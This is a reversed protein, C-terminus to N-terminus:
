KGSDGDTFGANKLAEAWEPAPQWGDPMLQRVLDIVDEEGYRGAEYDELPGTLGQRLLAAREPTCAARAAGIFLTLQLAKEFATMAGSM